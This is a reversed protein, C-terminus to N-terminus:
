RRSEWEDENTARMGPCVANDGIDFIFRTIPNPIAMLAFLILGFLVCAFAAVLTM